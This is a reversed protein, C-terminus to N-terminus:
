RLRLRRKKTSLSISRRLYFHKFKKFCAKRLRIIRDCDPNCWTSKVARETLLQGTQVSRRPPPTGEKICNELISMFSASALHNLRFTLVLMMYLRAAVLTKSLLQFYIIGWDSKTINKSLLVFDILM